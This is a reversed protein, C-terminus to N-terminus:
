KNGLFNNGIMEIFSDDGLQKRTEYLQVADAGARYRLQKKGDTAAEFIIAAIYDASSYGNLREPNAFVNKIKDITKDYDTITPNHL